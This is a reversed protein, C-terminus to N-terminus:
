LTHYNEKYSFPWKTLVLYIVPQHRTQARARTHSLSLTLFLSLTCPTRVCLATYNNENPVRRDLPLVHTTGVNQHRKIFQLDFKNFRNLLKHIIFSNLTSLRHDLVRVTRYYLVAVASGEYIRLASAIIMTHSPSVAPTPHPPRSIRCEM